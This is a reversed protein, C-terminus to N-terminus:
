VAQSATLVGDRVGAAANTTPPRPGREREGVRGVFRFGTLFYYYCAVLSLAGAHALFRFCILATM